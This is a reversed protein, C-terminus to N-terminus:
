RGLHHWVGRDGEHVQLGQEEARACVRSSCADPSRSPVRTALDCAVARVAAEMGMIGYLNPGQKTPGGQLCSHCTSCKAKFLAAGKKVDGIIEDTAATDDKKKKWGGKALYYGESKLQGPTMGGAALEQHVEGGSGTFYGAAYGVAGAVGAVAAATATTVGM